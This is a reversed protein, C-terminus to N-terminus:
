DLRREAGPELALADAALSDENAVREEWFAWGGVGTGAEDGADMGVLEDWGPNKDPIM